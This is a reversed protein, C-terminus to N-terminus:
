GAAERKEKTVLWCLLSGVTVMIVGKWFSNSLTVGLILSSFLASFIPTFYSLTALFVMNGGVIAINWLGYGGAMLAASAFLYGLASWSFTMTPEDAFAYKVWLSVATAIFFLTIANHKSQQRQTLNCYVAWIVAGTLAMFYVLPNSSVNSIIQTPSLGNDGSVTWAVGIFALTVAPYLLWNPKKNSGLVAFLVTLAPWLYNVISVEIAQARSNSYGLALALFIEYFVFMAGGVILYKSSFYSLKPIGVVILLFISSLSYLMAAGGVPGLSETVLRAIGLLCSWSLIAICGYLTFRFQVSKM